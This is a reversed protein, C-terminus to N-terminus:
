KGWTEMERQKEAEECRIGRLRKSVATIMSILLSTIIIRSACGVCEYQGREDHIEPVRFVCVCIICHMFVSVCFM